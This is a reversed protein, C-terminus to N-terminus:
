RRTLTVFDLAYVNKEDPERRERSVEQWSDEDWQPFYTDGEIHADIFTLYMTDAKELVAEYLTAGGMIIVEECPGAAKLADELSHVITCGEVSLGEQRTLVINVRKPLPRNGMSAFTKRGMVVPKGVTLSKFHKLDAPLHWPMDNDKGIVRGKAMAAILSIKMYCDPSQHNPSM